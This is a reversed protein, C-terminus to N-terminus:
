RREFYSRFIQSVTYIVIIKVTGDVVKDVLDGLEQTDVDVHLKVNVDDAIQHKM